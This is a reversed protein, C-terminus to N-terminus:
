LKHHALSFIHSFISTIIKYDDYYNRPCSFFMSLLILIIDYTEPERIPDFTKLKQLIEFMIDHKEVM